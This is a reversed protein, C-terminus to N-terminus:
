DDGLRCTRARNAAAQAERRVFWRVTREAGLAVLLGRMVLFLRYGLNVIPRWTKSGWLKAMREIGVREYIEAFADPGTHWQGAEDRVYMASLLVDQDLGAERAEPDDFHEASADIIELRHEDDVAALEEIEARCIPCSADHYVRLRPAANM